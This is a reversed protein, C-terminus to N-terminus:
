GRQVASRLFCDDRQDQAPRDRSRPWVPRLRCRLALPHAPWHQRLPVTGPNLVESDPQRRRQHHRQKAEPSRHAGFHKPQVFLRRRRRVARGFDFQRLPPYISSVKIDLHNYGLRGYVNFGNGFPVAGIVSVATQNIKLHSISSGPFGSDFDALRHYGAEAAFNTSFQYGLFGGFSNERDYHEELRSSGVDAGAYFGPRVQASASCAMVALTAAFAIKKFM